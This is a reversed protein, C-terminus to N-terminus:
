LPKYNLPEWKNSWNKAIPRCPRLNIKRFLPPDNNRGPIKYTDPAFKRTFGGKTYWWELTYYLSSLVNPEWNLRLRQDNVDLTFPISTDIFYKTRLSNDRACYLSGSIYIGLSGDSKQTALPTKVLSWLLHRNQPWTYMWAIRKNNKKKVLQTSIVRRHLHYFQNNQTM